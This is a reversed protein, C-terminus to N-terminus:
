QKVAPHIKGDKDMTTEVTVVEGGEKFWLHSSIVKPLSEDKDCLALAAKAREYADSPPQGLDRYATLSDRLLDALAEKLADRQKLLEPLNTERDIILANYEQDIRRAENNKEVSGWCYSVNPPGSPFIAVAAKMALESPKPETSPTM